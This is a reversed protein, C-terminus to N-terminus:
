DALIAYRWDDILDEPSWASRELRFRPQGEFSAKAAVEAVDPNVSVVLCGLGGARHGRRCVGNAIVNDEIVQRIRWVALPAPCQECVFEHM